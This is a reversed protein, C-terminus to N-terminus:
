EEDVDVNELRLSEAERLENMMVAEGQEMLKSDLIRSAIADKMKKKSM